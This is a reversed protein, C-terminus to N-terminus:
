ERTVLPPPAFCWGPWSPEGGLDDAQDPEVAMVPAPELGGGILSAFGEGGSVQVRREGDQLGRSLLGRLPPSRHLGGGAALAGRGARQAVQGLLVQM